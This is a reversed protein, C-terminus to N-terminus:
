GADEDAFAEESSRWQQGYRVAEEFDPNNEFIGVFREWWPVSEDSKDTERQQKIEEVKTELVAVREELTLTSM